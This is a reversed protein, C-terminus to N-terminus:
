DGGDLGAELEEVAVPQVDGILDGGPADLKIQNDGRLREVRGVVVGAEVPRQDTQLPLRVAAGEDGGLAVVKAHAAAGEGKEVKDALLLVLRQPRQLPRQRQGVGGRRGNGRRGFVPVRRQRLLLLHRLRIGELQVHLNDVVNLRGEKAINKLKFPLLQKAIGEERRRQTSAKRM